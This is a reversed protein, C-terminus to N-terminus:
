HYNKAAQGTNFNYAYYKEVCHGIVLLVMQKSFKYWFVLAKDIVSQL